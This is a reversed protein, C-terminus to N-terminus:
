IADFAEEGWATEEATMNVASQFSNRRHFSLDTCGLHNKHLRLPKDDRQELPRINPVFFVLPLGHPIVDHTDCLSDESLRERLMVWM